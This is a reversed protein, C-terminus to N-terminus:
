STRFKIAIRFIYFDLARWFACWKSDPNHKFPIKPNCIEDLLASLTSEFDQLLKLDIEQKGNIEVNMLGASLNRFSIIGSTIPLTTTPYNKFYMLAYTLVQFGKSYKYDSTTEALDHLKLQRQQVM